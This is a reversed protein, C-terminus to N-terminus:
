SETVRAFVLIAKEAAASPMSYLFHVQGPRCVMWNGNRAPPATCTVIYIVEMYKSGGPGLMAQLNYVGETASAQASQNGEKKPLDVAPMKVMSAKQQAVMQALLVAMAQPDVEPPQALLLGAAADQPLEYGQLTLRLAGEPAPPEPPAASGPQFSLALLLM